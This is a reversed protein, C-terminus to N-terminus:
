LGFHLKAGDTPASEKAEAALLQKLHSLLHNANLCRRKM